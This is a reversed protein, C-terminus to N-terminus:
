CKEIEFSVVFIFYDISQPVQMPCVDLDAPYSQSDVFFGKCKYDTSLPKLAIWHPCIKQVFLASVVLCECTFLHFPSRKHVSYLFWTFIFLLDLHLLLGQFFCILLKRSRTNPLSKNSMADFACTAFSISFKQLRITGILFYFGTWLVLSLM